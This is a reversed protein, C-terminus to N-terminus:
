VKELRWCGVEIIKRKQTHFDMTKKLPFDFRFFHTIKFGNEKSFKDIFKDSEIKHFTYIIDSVQIAKELFKRDAHESQVGFPPNQIVMDVRESFSSIDMNSIQYDKQDMLRLNEELQKLAYKDIDVFHVVQPAFFLCGIGLVGTGCGLDAIKKGEIEGRQYAWWIIEAAIESDTPYQELRASAKQFAGLRSLAVALQKKSQM